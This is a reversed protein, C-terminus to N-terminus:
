KEISEKYECETCVILKGKKVLLNKCSPCPKEIPEYWSAFKCSPYGKCGYFTRGKKTKRVVIKNGCKPCLIGIDENLSKTNKCEPFGSCALFEGFRGQKILMPKGCKECKENSIKDPIEIKKIKEYKEELNKEFPFYFDSIIPVWKVKGSAIEDLKNEMNATFDIDIIEPFNKVLLDNVIFGIEQPILHQDEKKVYGRTLITSITPAYTSPRGVGNEELTKVLSGETYRKPPETFKQGSELEKLNLIENEELSPLVRDEPMLASYVKLFGDFKLKIGSARFTYNKASIDAALSNFLAEKMQCAMTRQWILSYLRFQEPSLHEKIQEPEKQVYTPRIAEHAEQANKSKSKFVRIEPSLYNQGFKEKVKGRIQNIAESALNFSDTRMYTILGVRNKNELEVGEYLQQAIVMTKKTSFRFKSFAEQQLSSTIFPPKPYRKTERSTIKSVRYQAENLDVLIEDVEKKSKIGLKPIIKDDKKVLTALFETQSKNTIQIKSNPIKQLLAEITWYEQPVFAQIEREKEIILRLTVSQVRGASLGGKIKKWLLPSLKYGVIRDLVRRAQQADVLNINIKSPNDVAKKIANETIEHFVIRKIKSEPLDIIKDIHWAIAEGERDPDTAVYITDFDAAEKKLKNVNKRVKTPIVYKPQFEHEVDVGFEGKPLDRVHGYSAEVKYGKGLFKEITKAKAPSEVIVLNKM